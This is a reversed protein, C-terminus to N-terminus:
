LYYSKYWRVFKDIGEDISTTPSYNIWEKLFKTCAFTQVVDGKQMPLFEKRVEKNLNKGLLNIFDM